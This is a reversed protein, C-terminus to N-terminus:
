SPSYVDCHGDRLVSRALRSRIPKRRWLERFARPRLPVELNRDGGSVGRFARHAELRGWISDPGSNSTRHGKDLHLHVLTRLRFILSRSPMDHCHSHPAKPQSLTSYRIITNLILVNSSIHFVEERMSSGPSPRRRGLWM